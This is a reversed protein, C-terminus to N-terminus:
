SQRGTSPRPGTSTKGAESPDVGFTQGLQSRGRSVRSKITGVTCNCAEAAELQSYGFAGMLVIPQRHIEPLLAMVSILKNLDVVHDQAPEEVCLAALRGDVDQVERRSKRLGSYFTNRLITFLWARLETGPSFGDRGAWAKLFTEQVLDEARHPDTSLKLAYRFLAAAHQPLLLQLPHVDPVTTGGGEARGPAGAERM